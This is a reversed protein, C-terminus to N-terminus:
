FPNLFGVDCVATCGAVCVWWSNFVEGAPFDGGFISDHAGLDAM